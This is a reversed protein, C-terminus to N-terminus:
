ILKQTTIDVSEKWCENELQSLDHRTECKLFLICKFHHTM